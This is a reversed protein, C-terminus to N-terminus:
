VDPLLPSGFATITPTDSWGPAREGSETRRPHMMRRRLVDGREREEERGVLPASRGDQWAEFRSEAAGTGLVQAAELPQDFSKLV